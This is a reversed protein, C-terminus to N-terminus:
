KKNRDNISNFLQKAESNISKVKDIIVRCECDPDEGKPCLKALKLVEANVKDDNDMWNYVSSALSSLKYKRVVATKKIRNLENQSQSLLTKVISLQKQYNSKM